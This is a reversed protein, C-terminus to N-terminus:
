TQSKGNKCIQIADGSLECTVSAQHQAHEIMQEITVDRYNLHVRLIGFKSKVQTAEIDLDPHAAQYDSLEQSLNYLVQYWGDGCQFGWCMSSESPPKHHGRYLRPFASYLKETLELNMARCHWNNM